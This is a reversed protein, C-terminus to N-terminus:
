SAKKNKIKYSIYIIIALLVISLPYNRYDSLSLRGDKNTHLLGIWKNKSLTGDAEFHYFNENMKQLEVM